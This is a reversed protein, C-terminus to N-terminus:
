LLLGYTVALETQSTNFLELVVHITPITSDATNYGYWISINM